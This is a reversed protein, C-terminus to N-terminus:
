RTFVKVKLNASIDGSSFREHKGSKLEQESLRKVTLSKIETLYLNTEIKQLFRLFDPFSGTIIVQFAISDWPDTKAAKLSIPSIDGSVGSDIAAKEWSEILDIPINPDVFLWQIKELDPRHKDYDKKIKELDVSKGQSLVLEGKMAALTESNRKIGKFLPYILLGILALGVTGFIISNIVIRKKM